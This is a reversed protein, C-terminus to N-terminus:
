GLWVGTGGQVGTARAMQEGIGERVIREKLKEVQRLEEEVVGGHVEDLTKGKKGGDLGFWGRWELFGADRGGERAASRKQQSSLRRLMTEWNAVGITLCQKCKAAEEQGDTALIGSQLNAEAVTVAQRTWGLGESSSPSSAFLIEGIYLMLESEECSPRESLRVMPLDGSPPPPPYQPPRFVKQFFSLAADIDTKAEDQAPRATQPSQPFPSVPASIRARLISLLISLAASVNGIRAHHIALSTTARLLNPTADAAADSKLVSTKSDLVDEPNTIISLGTKAIDVGWKYMEEASDDLGKFELWNAYALAADLKQKTTFGKSTLVRMYYTEPPDFPRGCDEEKPAAAMYPPVPRPDPNSPGIVVEKPFVLGRTKDVVMGDLHEAAAACGMVVEYYGARWPWSKGSSDLGAKGAGPILLGGEVQEVLGKGEATTDELRMLCKRLASGVAAWDVFGATSGGEEGARLAARAARLNWRTWFRWEDPTPQRREEVEISYGVYAISGLILFTWIIVTWKAALYMQESVYRRNETSLLRALQPNPGLFGGNQVRFAPQSLYPLQPRTARHAILLLQTKQTFLRPQPPQQLAVNPPRLPRALPIRAAALRRSLM